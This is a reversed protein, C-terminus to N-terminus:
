QKLRVVKPQRFDSCSADTPRKPSINLNRPSILVPYTGQFAQFILSKLSDTTQSSLSQNKFFRPLAGERLSISVKKEIERHFRDYRRSTSIGDSQWIASMAATPIGALGRMAYRLQCGAIDQLTIEHTKELVRRACRGGAARAEARLHGHFLRASFM